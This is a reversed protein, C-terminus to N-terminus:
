NEKTLAINAFSFNLFIFYSTSSEIFTEGGADFERNDFCYEFGLDFVFEPKPQAASILAAMAFLSLSLTARRM